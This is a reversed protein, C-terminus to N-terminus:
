FFIHICRSRPENVLGTPTAEHKAPEVSERLLSVVKKTENAERKEQCHRAADVELKRWAAM